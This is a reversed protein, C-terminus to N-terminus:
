SIKIIDISYEGAREYGTGLSSREIQFGYVKGQTLSVYHYNDTSTSSVSYQTTWSSQYGSTVEGFNIDFGVDTDKALHLVYTGTAPAQFLWTDIDDNYDMEGEGFFTNSTVVELLSANKPESGAVDGTLIQTVNNYDVEHCRDVTGINDTSFLISTASTYGHCYIHDLINSDTLKVYGTGSANQCVACTDLAATNGPKHTWKGNSNRMYFHFDPIDPSYVMIVLRSSSSIHSTITSSSTPNLTIGTVTHGLVSADRQVNLWVRTFSNNNPNTHYFEGPQQFYGYFGLDSTDGACFFRMAYGYCNARRQLMDDYSSNVYLTYDYSDSYTPTVDTISFAWVSNMLMASMILVAILFVLPRKMKGGKVEKKTIKANNETKM